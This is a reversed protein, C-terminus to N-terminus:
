IEGDGARVEYFLMPECCRFEILAEFLALDTEKAPLELAPAAM